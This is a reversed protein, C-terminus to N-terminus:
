RYESVVISPVCSKQEANLLNLLMPQLKNTEAHALVYLRCLEAIHQHFQQRESLEILNTVSQCYGVPLLLTRLFQM